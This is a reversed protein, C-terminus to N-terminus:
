YWFIALIYLLEKTKTGTLTLKFNDIKSSYIIEYCLALSLSLVLTIVVIHCLLNLSYYFIRLHILSAIFRFIDESLIFSIIHFYKKIM